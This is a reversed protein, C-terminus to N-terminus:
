ASLGPSENIIAGLNEIQICTSIYVSIINGVRVRFVKQRSLLGQLLGWLFGLVRFIFRESFVQVVEIRM